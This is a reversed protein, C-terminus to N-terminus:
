PRAGQALARRGFLAVPAAWAQYADSFDAFASLAEQPDQDARLWFTDFGCRELLLLQDRLVDGVAMLPGSWRLQQRLMRASSYARGDTFVPLHIAIMSLHPLDAHLAHPDDGPSLLVGIPAARGGSAQMDAGLARWRALTVIDWAAPPTEGLDAQGHDPIRWRNPVPKRHEILTAM